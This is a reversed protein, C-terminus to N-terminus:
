SETRRNVGEGAQPLPNPHPHHRHLWDLIRTLVADRELLAERDTFRLVHYGLRNLEETRARDAAIAEPEFHQGGDLEVILMAEICAFDAFYSGIPRQRRFKYGDLQRDRLASWLRREAEPSTQRLSRARVRVRERLRSLPSVSTQSAPM